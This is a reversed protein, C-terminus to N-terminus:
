KGTEWYRHLGEVLGGACFLIKKLFKNWFFFGCFINLDCFIFRNKRFYIGDISPKIKYKIKKKEQEWGINLLVLGFLSFFRFLSLLTIKQLEIRNCPDNMVNDQYIDDYHQQLKLSLNKKTESKKCTFQIHVHFCFM